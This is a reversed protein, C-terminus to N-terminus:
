LNWVIKNACVCVLVDICSCHALYALSWFPMPYRCKTTWFLAVYCYLLHYCSLLSFAFLLVITILIAM